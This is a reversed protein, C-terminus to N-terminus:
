GAGTGGRLRTGSEAMRARSEATPLTYIDLSSSPPARSRYEPQIELGAQDFVEKDTTFWRM